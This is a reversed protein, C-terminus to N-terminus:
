WHPSVVTSPLLHDLAPGPRQQADGNPKDQDWTVEASVTQALLAAVRGALHVANLRDSLM